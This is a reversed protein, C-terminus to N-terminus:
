VTRRDCIVNKMFLLIGLEKFRYLIRTGFQERNLHFAEDGIQDIGNPIMVNILDDKDGRVGVVASGNIVLM